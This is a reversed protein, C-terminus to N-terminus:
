YTALAKEPNNTTTWDIFMDLPTVQVAHNTHTQGFTPTMQYLCVYYITMLSTLLCGKVSPMKGKKEKVSPLSSPKRTSCESKCGQGTCTKGRSVTEQCIRHDDSQGSVSADVRLLLSRLRQLATAVTASNYNLGTAPMAARSWAEVRHTPSTPPM